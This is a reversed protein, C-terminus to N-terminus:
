ILVTTRDLVIIDLVDHVGAIGCPSVPTVSKGWIRVKVARANLLLDFNHPYPAFRDGRYRSDNKYGKFQM